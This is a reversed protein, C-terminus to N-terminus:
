KELRKFGPNTWEIPAKCASLYLTLGGAYQIFNRYNDFNFYKAEDNTKHVHDEGNHTVFTHAPIGYTTKEKRQLSAFAINDSAYFLGSLNKVTDILKWDSKKNYDHLIDKLTTMNPGTILYKHEGIVSCHGLMEFNIDLYVSSLPIPSNQAFFRSGRMGMEEGSVAAFVITRAPKAKMMQFTKAVGLLACTGSANDNAGNNISDGQVGKRVGIHDFHATLLIYENKLKPDSGEIFGIVNSEPISDTKNRKIFYHQIYDEYGKFPKIGFEKFKKALWGAAVKMQPSGNRRGMMSDSALYNVWYEVTKKEIVPIKKEATQPTITILPLLVLLAILVRKM